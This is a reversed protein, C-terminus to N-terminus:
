KKDKRINTIDELADVRQSLEQISKIVPAILQYYDIRRVPSPPLGPEPALENADRFVLGYNEIGESSMLKEVDQAILGYQASGNQENWEFAVPTLKNVFNLGLGVPSVKQKLRLDSKAGAPGPPGPPGPPGSPGKPGPPGPPGAAGTAGTAGTPGAQLAGRFFQGNSNVLVSGSGSGTFTENRMGARFVASGVFTATNGVLLTSTMNVTGSIDMGNLVSVRGTISNATNNAVGVGVSYSSTAALLTGLPLLSLLPFSSVSGSLIFGSGLGSGESAQMLGLRTGTNGFISLTRSAGDLQVRGIGELPDSTRVTRGTLVGANVNTANINEVIIDTANIKGSDGDFTITNVGSSNIARLGQATLEVRAVDNLNDKLVIGKGQILSATIANASIEDATIANASIERATIANADIKGAVIANASIENATIANASIERATISDADIKGATIANAQITRADIADTTINRNQVANNNLESNTVANADITRTSVANTNISEEVVASNKITETIVAARVLKETTVVQAQLRNAAPRKEIYRLRADISSTMNGVSKRSRFRRSAM